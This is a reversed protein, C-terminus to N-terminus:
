RSGGRLRQALRAAVRDALAGRGSPVRVDLERAPAIPASSTALVRQLAPALNAAMRRTDARSVGRMRISLKDIKVNTM